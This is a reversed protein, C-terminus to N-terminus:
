VLHFFSWIQLYYATCAAYKFTLFKALNLIIRTGLIQTRLLKFVDYFM